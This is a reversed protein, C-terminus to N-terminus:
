RKLGLTSYGGYNKYEWEPPNNRDLAKHLEAFAKDLAREDEDANVTPNRRTAKLLEQSLQSLGPTNDAKKPESELTMASKFM